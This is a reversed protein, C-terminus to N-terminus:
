AFRYAINSPLIRNAAVGQSSGRGGQRVTQPPGRYVDLIALDIKRQRLLTLAEEFSDPAVMLVEGFTFTEDQIFEVIQQRMNQNDEVVAITWPHPQEGYGANTKM